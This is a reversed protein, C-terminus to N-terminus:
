LAAPLRGRRRPPLSVSSVPEGRIGMGLEFDLVTDGLASDNFSACTNPIKVFFFILGHQLKLQNTLIKRIETLWSVKVEVTPAQFVRVRVRACLLFVSWTTVCVYMCINTFKHSFTSRSSFTGPHRLGGGERQVM